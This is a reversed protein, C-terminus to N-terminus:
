QNAIAIRPIRVSNWESRENMTHKPKTNRILISEIIQRKTSDNRCQAVINMRFNPIEGNHENVCHKWLRECKAVLDQAHKTGRTYGNSSTHGHYVFPCDGECLIDYVIGSTRCNGSGGSKCAMCDGCEKNRFPDNKLLLRVMKTGSKEVVKINGNHAKIYVQMRKQLQSSPTAGIFLVSEYNGHWRKM